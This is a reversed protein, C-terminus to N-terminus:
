AARLKVLGMDVFRRFYRLAELEHLPSVHIIAGVDRKGDVRSLLYREPASLEMTKIQSPPVLLEPVRVPALLATRLEEFLRAQTTKLFEATETSQTLEHARKALSEASDLNGEALFARAFRLVEESTATRGLTHDPAPKSPTAQSSVRIAELRHLAYLRQYLFFDTAHLALVIEDISLGERILSLLKGDLSNPKPPDPLNRETIELRLNGSPFAARIAKWASERFEGERYVDLLDIKLDMGDPISMEAGRMFSFAAEQWDFAGLITERFKLSLATNVIADTVVGTMTLIKGLFIQTEKQTQYAHNFEDETIHGLNILFQGIFERPENSSANVVYGDRIAVQKRLERSEVTLVGTARKNGLYLVLDKLPMTRFDGSLGQMNASM